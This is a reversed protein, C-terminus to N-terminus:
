HRCWLMGQAGRGGGRCDLVGWPDAWCVWVNRAYDEAQEAWGFIENLGCNNANWNRGSRSTGQCDLEIPAAVANNAPDFVVQPGCAHVYPRVSRLMAIFHLTVRLVCPRDLARCAM